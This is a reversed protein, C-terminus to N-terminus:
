KCWRRSVVWISAPPLQALSSACIGARVPSVRAAGAPRPPRTAASAPASFPSHEQVPRTDGAASARSHGLRGAACGGARLHRQRGGVARSIAPRVNRSIASSRARARRRTGRATLAGQRRLWRRRAPGRCEAAQKEDVHGPSATGLVLCIASEDGVQVEILDDVSGGAVPFLTVQQCAQEVLPDKVEARQLITMLDEPVELIGAQEFNGLAKGLLHPLHARM